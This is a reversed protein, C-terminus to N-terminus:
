DRAAILRGAIQIMGGKDLTDTGPMAESGSAAKIADITAEPDECDLEYITMLQYQPADLDYVRQFELNFLRASLVGPMKIVDDVHRDRYWAEYEAEQGPKSRSLITYTYRAM